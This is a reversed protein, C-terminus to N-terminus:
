HKAVMHLARPESQPGLICVPESVLDVFFIFCFLVAVVFAGSPKFFGLRLFRKYSESIFNLM